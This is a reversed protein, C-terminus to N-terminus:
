TISSKLRSAVKKILEEIVLDPKLPKGVNLHLPYGKIKGNRQYGRREYFAILEIRSSLVNMMYQEPQFSSESYCEALNLVVKGLGSDQSEPHVAFSGIYASNNKKKVSICAQIAEDQKYVLLHSNADNIESVIDNICCRDGEVLASETTWGESGRYALNLLACIESADSTCALELALAM